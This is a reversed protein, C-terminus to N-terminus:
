RCIVVMGHCRNYCCGNMFIIGSASIGPTARSELYLSLIRTIDKDGPESYDSCWIQNSDTLPNFLYDQVYIYVCM